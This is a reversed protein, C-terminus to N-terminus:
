RSSRTTLLWLSGSHRQVFVDENRALIHRRRLHLGEGVLKGFQDGCLAAGDGLFLVPTQPGEGEADLLVALAVVRQEVDVRRRGGHLLELPRHRDVLVDDTEQGHADVGELLARRRDHLAAALLGIARHPITRLTAAPAIPRGTALTRTEAILRGT